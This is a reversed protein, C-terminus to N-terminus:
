LDDASLMVIGTASDVIHMLNFPKDFFAEINSTIPRNEFDKERIIDFALDILGPTNDYRIIKM